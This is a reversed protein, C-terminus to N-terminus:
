EERVPDSINSSFQTILNRHSERTGPRAVHYTPVESNAKAVVEGHRGLEDKVKKRERLIERAEDAKQGVIRDADPYENVYFGDGKYQAPAGGILRIRPKGCHPCNSPAEDRGLRLEEVMKCEDCRVDFTPM